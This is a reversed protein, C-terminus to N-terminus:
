VEKRIEPPIFMFENKHRKELVRREKGIQDLVEKKDIVDNMDKNQYRYETVRYVEAVYRDIDVKAIKRVNKLSNILCLLPYRLVKEEFDKVTKGKKGAATRKTLYEEVAELDSYNNDLENDTLKLFEKANGDKLLRIMVVLNKTFMMVVADPKEDNIYWGSIREIANKYFGEEFAVDKIDTVLPM